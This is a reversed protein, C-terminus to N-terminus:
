ILTVSLQSVCLRNMNEQSFYPSIPHPPWLWKPFLGTPALLEQGFIQIFYVTQQTLSYPGEELTWIM